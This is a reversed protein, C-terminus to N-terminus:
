SGSIIELTQEIKQGDKLVGELIVNNSGQKLQIFDTKFKGMEMKFVHAKFGNTDNRVWLQHKDKLDACSSLELSVLHMKSKVVLGQPKCFINLEMKQQARIDAQTGPQSGPYQLDSAPTREKALSRKLELPEALLQTLSKVKAEPEDDIFSLATIGTLLVFFLIITKNQQWFFSM